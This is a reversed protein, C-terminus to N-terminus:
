IGQLLSSIDLKIKAWGHGGQSEDYDTNGALFSFFPGVLIGWQLSLATILFTMGLATLGAKKLFTM